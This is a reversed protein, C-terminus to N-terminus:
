EKDEPLLIWNNHFFYDYSAEAMNVNPDILQQLPKRNVSVQANVYIAV